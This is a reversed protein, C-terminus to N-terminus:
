WDKKPDSIFKIVATGGIMKVSGEAPWVPMEKFEESDIIESYEEKTFNGVERGMFDRFYWYRSANAGFYGDWFVSGGDLECYKFIDPFLEPNYGPYGAMFIRTDDRIYGDLTYVRDLALQMEQHTYDYCLKFAYATANASVTNGLLIVVIAALSVYRLILNIVSDGIYEMLIFMLLFILVYQYRLIDRMGNKPMIVLLFNMALPLVCVSLIALLSNIYGKESNKKLVALVVLIFIIAFVCLYLKKRMLIDKFFYSFFWVYSYKLSFGINSFIDKISFDTVRGSPAVHYIKMVIRSVPINIVCAAFGSAACLVLNLVSTKIKEENLLDYIFLILAFASVAGIYAQYSGMMFLYFVTGIIFAYIKRKRIFMTGIIVSLFSFSFSLAMYFFGFHHLVIPFSVMLATLLIQVLPKSMKLMRCIIYVSAGIMLCYGVIILAPMVLNNGFAKNLFRIMWRAQGTSTAANHYIYVGECLTDPGGLGYLMEYFYCIFCTVLTTILIYKPTFEDFKLVKENILKIVAEPTYNNKQDDEKKCFFINKNSM